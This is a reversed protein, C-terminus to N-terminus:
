ILHFFFISFIPIGYPCKIICGQVILKKIHNPLIGTIHNKRKFVCKMGAPIFIFSSFPFFYSLSQQNHFICGWFLICFKWKQHAIHILCFLFQFLIFSLPWRYKRFQSFTSHVEFHLVFITIFDFVEQGHRGPPSNKHRYKRSM